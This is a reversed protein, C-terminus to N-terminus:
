NPACGISGSPANDLQGPPVHGFFGPQGGIIFILPGFGSPQDPFGSSVCHGFNFVTPPSDAAAAASPIALAFAAIGAVLGVVRSHSM